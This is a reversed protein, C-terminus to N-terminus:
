KKALNPHISRVFDGVRNTRVYRHWVFVLDFLQAALWWLYLFALVGLVVPWLEPDKPVSPLPDLHLIRWVLCVVFGGSLVMLPWMGWKPKWKSVIASVVGIALGALMVRDYAGPM